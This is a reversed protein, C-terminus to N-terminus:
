PDHSSEMERTFVDNKSLTEMAAMFNLLSNLQKSFIKNEPNLDGTKQLQDFAKESHELNLYVMALNLYAMALYYHVKANKERRVVKKYREIAKELVKREAIRPSTFFQTHM